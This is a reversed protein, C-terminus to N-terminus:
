PEVHTHRMRLSPLAASKPVALRTHAQRACASRAVSWAPPSPPLVVALWHWASAPLESDSGHPPRRTGAVLRIVHEYTVHTDRTKFRGRQAVGIASIPCHWSAVEERNDRWRRLRPGSSARGWQAEEEEEEKKEEAEEEGEMARTASLRSM